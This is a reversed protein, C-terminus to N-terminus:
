ATRSALLPALVQYYARADFRFPGLDTLKDRRLEPDYTNEFAFDEWVVADQDRRLTISIAGCDLDGCEPCIFLSTRENPLDPPRKRLLREVAEAQWAPPGWGLCSIVDFGRARFEEFLSQGDVVLDLFTRETRGGGGRRSAQALSLSNLV